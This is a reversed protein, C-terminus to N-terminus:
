LPATPFWGGTTLPQLLNNFATGQANDYLVFRPIRPPVITPFRPKCFNAALGVQNADHPTGLDDLAHWNRPDGQWVIDHHFGVTVTAPIPPVYTATLALDHELSM